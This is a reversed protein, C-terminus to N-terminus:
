TLALLGVGVGCSLAGSLFIVLGLSVGQERDAMDLKALDAHRVMLQAHADDDYRPRAAGCCMLGGVLAVAMSCYTHTWAYGSLGQASSFLFIVLAVLLTGGIIGAITLTIRRMM